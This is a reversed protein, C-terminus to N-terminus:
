SALWMTKVTGVEKAGLNVPSHVSKIISLKGRLKYTKKTPGAPNAGVTKQKEICILYKKAHLSATPHKCKNFALSDELQFHSIKSWLGTINSLTKNATWINYETFNLFGLSKGTKKRCRPIDRGLFNKRNTIM